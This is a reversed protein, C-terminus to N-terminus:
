THKQEQLIDRIAEKVLEWAGIADKGKEQFARRNVSHLRSLAFQILEEREASSLGDLYAQVDGVNGGPASGGAAAPGGGEKEKQGYFIIKWGSETTSSEKVTWEFIGEDSLEELAPTLSEMIKSKYRRNRSIELRNHALHRLDIQISGQPYIAEDVWRYLRQALPSSLAYYTQLDLIKFRAKSGFHNFLRENWTVTLVDSRVGRRKEGKGKEWRWGDLIGFSAEDYGKNQDNWLANTEIYVSALQHLSRRLREYSKGNKVWQMTRILDGPIVELHRSSFSKRCTVGLLAVYVQEAAYQPLGHKTNASVIKHLRKESGDAGKGMWSARLEDPRGSKARKGLTTFPLKVISREDQGMGGGFSFGGGGEGRSPTGHSGNSGGNGQVGGAEEEGAGTFLNGTTAQKEDTRQRTSTAM